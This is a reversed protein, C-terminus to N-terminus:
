LLGKNLSGLTNSQLVTSMQERVGIWQAHLRCEGGSVCAAFGLICQKMGDKGEMLDIIELLSISDPDRAFVFGGVRGRSGTILGKSSLETLLRRLYRRPIRLKEYLYESTYLPQGDSAMFSLVSLAYETTKNLYM